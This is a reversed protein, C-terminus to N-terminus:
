RSQAAPPAAGPRPVAAPATPRAAESCDLQLPRASILATGFVRRTLEDDTIPQSMHSQVLQWRCDSPAKKAGAPDKACSRRAGTRPDRAPVPRKEFVHTVRMRVKGAGFGPRAPIDAVYSGVWYAVTADGPARGVTGVRRDELRGAPM